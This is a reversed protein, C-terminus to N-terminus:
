PQKQSKKRKPKRDPLLVTISGQSTVGKPAQGTDRYKRLAQATADNLGCNDLYDDLGQNVLGQAEPHDADFANLLQMWISKDRM